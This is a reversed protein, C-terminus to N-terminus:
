TGNAPLEAAHCAAANAAYGAIDVDNDRRSANVERACKQLINLYAVQRPTIPIGLFVSFLKATRTHNVSAAGYADQRDGCVIGKAEDLVQAMVRNDHSPQPPIPAPHHDPAYEGLADSLVATKDFYTKSM